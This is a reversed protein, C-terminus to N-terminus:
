CVQQIHNTSKKMLDKIQKVYNLYNGKSFVNLQVYFGTVTEEDDAFQEPKELYTSFTCYSTSDGTYVQFSVPIPLTKLTALILKNM